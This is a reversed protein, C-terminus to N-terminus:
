QTLSDLDAQLAQKNTPDVMTLRRLEFYNRWYNRLAEIYGMEANDSEVQAINLDTISIRGILYRQRTVEYRKRAVTDAKSAMRFQNDMMAYRMVQLYVDQNFDIKQQEVNVRTLELDSESMKIQGKALGWDILPLQIGLNLQQQDQPDKYVDKIYDARQTLGYMAYLQVNLRSDMRAKDLSSESEILMRDMAIAEPRNERAFVIAEDVGILSEPPALPPIPILPRDEPLRLFSRLRFMNMEQELQAQEVESKARLHSLELQLLENEAIKGLNYRGEAIRYLTDYNAQNIIAIKLRLESLLLNFFHGVAKLSIDELDQIYRKRAEAYRLPEIKSDWKWANYTFLPQTYGISLPDSRWYTTISDSINDIRQLGSRLFLTGGTPGIRKSLSLDSAYSVFSREIFVENGDQQTYKTIARELNPLTADLNLKPLYTARYTRFSWYSSRFRHRAALAERSRERGMKVTETLSIYGTQDATREQSVATFALFCLCGIICPLRLFRMPKRTQLYSGSPNRLLILTRKM